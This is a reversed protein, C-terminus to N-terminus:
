PMQEKLYAMAEADLNFETGNQMRFLLRANRDAADRVTMGMFEGFRITDDLTHEDSM